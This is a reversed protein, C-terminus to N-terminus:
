KYKYDIGFEEATDIDDSGSKDGQYRQDRGRKIVVQDLSLANTFSPGRLQPRPTKAVYLLFKNWERVVADAGTTFGDTFISLFESINKSQNRYTKKSDAPSYGYLRQNNALILERLFSRRTSNTAIEIATSVFSAGTYTVCESEELIGPTVM